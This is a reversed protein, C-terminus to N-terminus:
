TLQNLKNLEFTRIFLSVYEPDFQTGAQKLLEEGAQRITLGRRYPRDSTMCDFADIIACLRAFPPIDPGSRGQPYGKGDWREHHYLVIDIVEPLMTGYEKLIMAGLRPHYKMIAWESATLASPKKLIEDPVLLKGVDHYFCGHVLVSKQVDSLRLVSAMVEALGAMRISHDYTEVDKEMLEKMEAIILVDPM